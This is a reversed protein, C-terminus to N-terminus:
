QTDVFDSFQSPGLTDIGAFREIPCQNVQVDTCPTGPRIALALEIRPGAHAIARWHRVESQCHLSRRMQCSRLACGGPWAHRCQGLRDRRYVATSTTARGCRIPATCGYAFKDAFSVAGHPCRIRLRTFPIPAPNLGNSRDQFAVDTDHQLKDAPETPFPGIGSRLKPRQRADASFSAGMM